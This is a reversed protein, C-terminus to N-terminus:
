CCAPLLAAVPLCCPLLMCAAVQLLAPATPPRPILCAPPRLAAIYCCCAPPPTCSPPLTYPPPAHLSATLHLTSPSYSRPSTPEAWSPSPPSEDVFYRLLLVALHPAAGDKSFSSPLPFCLLFATGKTGASSRTGHRRGGRDCRTLNRKQQSDTDPAQAHSRIHSPPPPPPATDLVSGRGRGTESARM